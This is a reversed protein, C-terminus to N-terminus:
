KKNAKTKNNISRLQIQTKHHKSKKHLKLNAQAHAQTRGKIIMECDPCKILNILVASKLETIM